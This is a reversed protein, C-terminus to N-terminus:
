RDRYEAIIQDSAKESVMYVASAIFFGPTDPFVSTDVVRLGEVGRVRLEGDLVAMPDDDTGIKATGCAHHGWAERKVFERLEERSAVEAGPVLERVVKTNEISGVITRAMELGDVVGDLDREWGPSGEDFYRMRIDPVDRPDASRLRVSGARDRTWGKLVLMSMRDHHPKADYAYNPYYGHFDAALSFIIVDANDGGGASTHAVMAALSGNTSYPGGRDDKWERLLHDDPEGPAPLDLTSDDFIPFDADLENVVSVEYRDHLNEGVGPADVLVPIGFEELEAAPGIGSLKLLQPTNFAGAAVIVENRARVTSRRPSPDDSRREPPTAAYLGAGALYEVGIARTGDFLVRTALADEIITLRDPHAARAALLRERRGNRRGGGAAVPVFSMGQYSPPTDAANIDRPLSIDEPIGFLQRSTTETANIIDLFRPERGAIAPDARTTQPRGDRGHRAKADRDAESDGPLPLADVGQWDEIREFIERMPGHGWSEDGTLEALGDWDRPQPAIHVMASVATSGGLTSGRPYLIGGLDDDWKSDERGRTPDDYHSVAFNWVMDPDESAYAQM